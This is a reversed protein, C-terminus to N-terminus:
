FAEGVELKNERSGAQLELHSSEATARTQMSQAAMMSQLEPTMLGFLSKRTYNAM